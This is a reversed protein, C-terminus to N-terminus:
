GSSVDRASGPGPVPVGRGTGGGWALATSKLRLRPSPSVRPCPAAASEWDGRRRTVTDGRRLDVTNGGARGGPVVGGRGAAFAPGRPLRGRRGGPIYRRVVRVGGSTGGPCSRRGPGSPGPMIRRLRQLLCREVASGLDGAPSAGKTLPPLPIRPKDLQLCEPPGRALIEELEPGAGPGSRHQRARQCEGVHRGYDWGDPGCDHPCRM